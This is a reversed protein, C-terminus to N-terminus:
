GSYSVGHVIFRGFRKSLERVGLALDTLQMKTLIRSDTCSAAAGSGDNRHLRSELEAIGDQAEEAAKQAELLAHIFCSSSSVRPPVGNVVRSM